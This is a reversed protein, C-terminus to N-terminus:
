KMPQVQSASHARPGAAASANSAQLTPSHNLLVVRTPLYGCFEADSMARNVSEHSLAPDARNRKAM